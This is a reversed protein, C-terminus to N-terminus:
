PKCFANYYASYGEARQINSNSGIESEYASRLNVSAMQKAVDCEYTFQGTNSKGISNVQQINKIQRNKFYESSIFNVATYFIKRFCSIKLHFLM